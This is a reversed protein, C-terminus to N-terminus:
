IIRVTLLVAAVFVILGMIKRVTEPQLHSASLRSGVFGGLIVAVVLPAVDGPAPIYHQFHGGLGALSNALIYIAGAAAAERVEALNFVTLLPVLLIGGGIGIMGSVFGIVSGLTLVAGIRAPRPWDSAFDVDPWWFIRIGVIVLVAVLIPYFLGAQVDIYGGLYAMPVSTAVLPGILAIRGHGERLYNVTAVASVLVNMTLSVPPIARHSAGFVALLATYTTGGGLGSASYATAVVFFLLALINPSIFLQDM